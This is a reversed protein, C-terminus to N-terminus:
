ECAPMRWIVLQRFFVFDDIRCFLLGDLSRGREHQGSWFSRWWRLFCFYYSIVTEFVSSHPHKLPHRFSSMKYSRCRLLLSPVPGFGQTARLRNTTSGWWCPNQFWLQGDSCLTWNPSMRFWNSQCRSWLIIRGRWVVISLAMYLWM